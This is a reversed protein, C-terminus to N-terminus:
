AEGEVRVWRRLCRNGLCKMHDLRLGGRDHRQTCVALARQPCLCTPVMDWDAAWFSVREDAECVFWDGRRIFTGVSTARQDGDENIVEVVLGCWRHGHPAALRVKTMQTRTIECIQFRYTQSRAAEFSSARHLERQGPARRGDYSFPYRLSHLSHLAIKRHAGSEVRGTTVARCARPM